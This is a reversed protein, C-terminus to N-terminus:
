APIVGGVQCRHIGMSFGIKGFAVGRDVEPEVGVGLPESDTAPEVSGSRLRDLLLESLGLETLKLVLM